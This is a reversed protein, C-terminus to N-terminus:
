RCVAYQGNRFDCFTKQGKNKAKELIKDYQLPKDYGALWVTDESDFKVEVTGSPYTKITRISDVTQMLSLAKPIDEDPIDLLPVNVEHNGLHFLSGEESVYRNDLTKAVPVKRVLDVKLVAPYIWTLSYSEVWDWSELQKEWAYPTAMHSLDVKQHGYWVEKVPLWYHSSMLIGFFIGIGVLKHRLEM